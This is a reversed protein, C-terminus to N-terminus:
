IKIDFKMCADQSFCGIPYTYLTDLPSFFFLYLSNSLIEGGWLFVWFNLKLSNDEESCQQYFYICARCSPKLPHAQFCVNKKECMQTALSQSAM